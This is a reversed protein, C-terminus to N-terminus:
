GSRTNGQENLIYVTISLSPTYWTDDAYYISGTISRYINGRETTVFIKYYTDNQPTVPFPGLNTKDMSQIVTAANQYVDNFWARVIKVPVNGRNEIKLNLESSNSSNPYAVVRVNEASREEDLILTEKHKRAYIQDAQNMVLQMPVVASFLIGIFILVGIMTSVGRRRIIM